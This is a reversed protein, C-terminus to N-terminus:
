MEQETIHTKLVGNHFQCKSKSIITIIITLWLESDSFELNHKKWAQLLLTNETHWTWLHFDVVNFVWKLSALWIANFQEKQVVFAKVSYVVIEECTTDGILTCM